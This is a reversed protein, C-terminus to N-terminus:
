VCTRCVDFLALMAGFCGAEVLIASEALFAFGEGLVGTLM